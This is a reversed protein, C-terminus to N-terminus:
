TIKYGNERKHLVGLHSDIHLADRSRSAILFLRANWKLFNLSM